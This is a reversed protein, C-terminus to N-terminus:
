SYYLIQCLRIQISYLYQLNESKPFMLNGAGLITLEGIFYTDGRELTDPLVDLANDWASGDGSGGDLIYHNAGFALTPLLLLLLLLKKM